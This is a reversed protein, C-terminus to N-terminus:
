RQRTIRGALTSANMWNVTTSYSRPKFQPYMPWRRNAVTFPNLGRNEHVVIIGPLKETLDVPRTLLGRITIGTGPSTYEITDADLRPDDAAVQLTSQYDPMLRALLGSVTLGGVAYTSLKSVFDRRDLLNHAYRDYLKFVEPPLSPKKDAPM